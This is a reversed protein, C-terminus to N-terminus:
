KLLNAKQLLSMIEKKLENKSLKAASKKIFVVVLFGKKIRSIEKQIVGYGIRRLKNRDVAKKAVKKSVVFSFRSPDRKEESSNQRLCAVRMYINLSAYNKGKIFVIPFLHRPIRNKKPLMYVM